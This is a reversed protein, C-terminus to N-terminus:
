MRQTPPTASGSNSTSSNGTNASTVDLPNNPDAGNYEVIRIDPYNAASCLNRHCHQSGGSGRCHEQCLLHITVRNWESHHPRGGLYVHQWQYQVSSVVATSDDWGVVIVNFDGAVQAATFTVNVTTQPSQPTAYNGQMYTITTSSVTRDSDRYCETPSRRWQRDCHHSLNGRTYSAGVTITM